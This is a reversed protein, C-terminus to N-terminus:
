IIDDYYRGQILEALVEEVIMQIDIRTFNRYIKDVIKNITVAKIFRIDGDSKFKKNTEVDIPFVVTNDARKSVDFSVLVTSLYKTERDIDCYVQISNIRDPNIAVYDSNSYVCIIM